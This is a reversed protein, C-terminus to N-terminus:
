CKGAKRDILFAGFKGEGATFLMAFSGNPACTRRVIRM